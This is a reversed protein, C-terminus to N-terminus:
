VRKQSTLLALICMHLPSLFNVDSFNLNYQESAALWEIFHESAPKANFDGIIMLESLKYEEALSSIKDIHLIYDDFNDNCDCPLYANLILLDRDRTKVTLGLIKKDDFNFFQCRHELNKHWLM